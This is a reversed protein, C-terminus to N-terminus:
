DTSTSKVKLAERIGLRSIIEVKVEAPLDSFTYVQPEDNSASPTLSNNVPASSAVHKPRNLSM